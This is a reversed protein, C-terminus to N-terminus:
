LSKLFVEAEGTSYDDEAEKYIEIAKTIDEKGSQDNNCLIKARGIGEISNGKLLYYLKDDRAQEAFEITKDYFEKAKAFDKSTYMYHSALIWYGGALKMKEFQHEERIAVLRKAAELGTQAEGSSIDLSDSWWPCTFSALNYLLSTVQRPTGDPHSEVFNVAKHTYSVVRPINHEKWYLSKQLGIQKSFLEIDQGPSLLEDIVLNSDDNGFAGMVKDFLEDDTMNHFNNVM